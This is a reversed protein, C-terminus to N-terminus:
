SIHTLVVKQDTTLDEDPERNVVARGGGKGRGRKGNWGAYAHASVGRRPREGVDNKNGRLILAAAIEIAAVPAVARRAWTARSRAPPPPLSPLLSVHSLEHSPEHSQVLPRTLSRLPRPACKVSGCASSFSSAPSAGIGPALHSPSPLLPPMFTLHSRPSSKREWRMSSTLLLHPSAPSPFPPTPPSM